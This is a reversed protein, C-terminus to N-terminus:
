KLLLIKRVAQQNGWRAQLFYIGSVEGQLELAITHTGAAYFDVRYERVVKGNLNILKLKVSGAAPLM